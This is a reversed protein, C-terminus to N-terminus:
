IEMNKLLVIKVLTGNKYLAVYINDNKKNLCILIGIISIFIIIIIIAVIRFIKKNSIVKKKKM